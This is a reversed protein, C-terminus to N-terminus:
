FPIEVGNEDLVPEEKKAPNKWCLASCYPKGARSMKMPAGCKACKTELQNTPKSLTETMRQAKEMEELSCKKNGSYGANDLARGIGSEEANETWSSYNVSEYQKGLNSTKLEKDRVEMAYGTAKPLNNKLDELTLYVSAKFLAYENVSFDPNLLEVIIRGDPYDKYFREKREKVTEYKTPDFQYAM